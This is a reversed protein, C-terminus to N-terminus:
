LGAATAIEESLELTVRERNMDNIRDALAYVKARLAEAEAQLTKVMEADLMRVRVSGKQREYRDESVIQNPLQSMEDFSVMDSSQGALITELCKQRRSLADFEALQRSIGAAANAEGLAQRISALADQLTFAHRLGDLQQTTQEKLRAIQTDGLFGNITTNTFTTLASRTLEAYNRALREAVKHWRALSLTYTKMPMNTAFRKLLQKCSVM